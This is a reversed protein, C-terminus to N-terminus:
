IIVESKNYIQWLILMITLGSWSPSFPSPSTISLFTSSLISITCSLSFGLACTPQDVVQVSILSSLCLPSFTWGHTVRAKEPIIHSKMYLRLMELLFIKYSAVVLVTFAKAKYNICQDSVKLLLQMLTVNEDNQTSGVEHLALEAVSTIFVNYWM